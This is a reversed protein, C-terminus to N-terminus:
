NKLFFPTFLEEMNKWGGFLQLIAEQSTKRRNEGKSNIRQLKLSAPGLWIIM